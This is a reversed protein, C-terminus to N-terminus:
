CPQKMGLVRCAAQLMTVQVPKLTAFEFGWRQGTKNRAVATLRLTKASQPLPFRVQVTQGFDFDAQTFVAMGSLSLELAQGLGHRKRGCFFVVPAFSFRRHQRTYERM